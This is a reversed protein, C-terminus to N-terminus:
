SQHMLFGHIIDNVIDWFSVKSSRPANMKYCAQLSNRNQPNIPGEKPLCQLVQLSLDILDFSICGSDFMKRATAASVLLLHEMEFVERETNLWEGRCVEELELAYVELKERWLQLEKIM